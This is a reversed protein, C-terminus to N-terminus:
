RDEDLPKTHEGGVIPTANDRRASAPGMGKGPSRVLHDGDGRSPNSRSATEGLRPHPEGRARSWPSRVFTEGM